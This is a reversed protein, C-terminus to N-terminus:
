RVDEADARRDDRIRDVERVEARAIRAVGAGLEPERELARHDRVEAEDIRLLAEALEELRRRLDPIAADVRGEQDDAAGDAALAEERREDTARQLREVERLVVLQLRLLEDVLQPELGDDA